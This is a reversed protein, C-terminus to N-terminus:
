RNEFSHVESLGDIYGQESLLYEELERQRKIQRKHRNAQDIISEERIQGNYEAIRKEIIAATPNVGFRDFDYWIQTKSLWKPKQGDLSIFITFDPSEEMARHKISTEEVRTWFTTGWSERYLVVVIRAKEEFVQRFTETGDKGVLEKQHESYIFTSYRDQITDNIKYALVEDEKLFSFAVEVEYTKDVKVLPM